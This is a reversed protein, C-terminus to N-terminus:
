YKKFMQIDDEASRIKKVLQYYATLLTEFEENGEGEKYYKALENETYELAEKSEKLRKDLIKRLTQLANTFDKDDYIQILVNLHLIKAKILLNDVLNTYHSELSLHEAKQHTPHGQGEHNLKFEEVVSWTIDLMKLLTQVYDTVKQCLSMRKKHIEIKEEKHQQLIEEIIEPTFSSIKLYDAIADYKTMLASDLDLSLFESETASELSSIENLVIANRLVQVNRQKM